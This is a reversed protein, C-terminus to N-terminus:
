EHSQGDEDIQLPLDVMAPRSAKCATHLEDLEDSDLAMTVYPVAGEALNIEIDWFPPDGPVFHVAVREDGSDMTGGLALELSYDLERLLSPELWLSTLRDHSRLAFLHSGDPLHLLDIDFSDGEYLADGEIEGTEAARRHTEDNHTMM